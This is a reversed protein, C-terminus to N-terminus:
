NLDNNEEASHSHALGVNIVAEWGIVSNSNCGWFSHVHLYKQIGCNSQVQSNLGNPVIYKLSTDTFEHDRLFELEFAIQLM